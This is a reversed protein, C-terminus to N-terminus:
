IFDSTFIFAIENIIKNDVEWSCDKLKNDSQPWRSCWKNYIKKTVTQKKSIFHCGAM